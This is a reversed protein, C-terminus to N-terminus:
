RAAATSWASGGARRSGEDVLSYHRPGPERPNLTPLKDLWRTATPGAPVPTLTGDAPEDFGFGGPAFGFDDTSETPAGLRAWLDLLEEPQLSESAGLDDTEGDESWLPALLDALERAEREELDQLQALEYFRARRDSPLARAIETIERREEAVTADNAEDKFGAGAIDPARETPQVLVASPWFVGVLLPRFDQGGLPYQARTAAFGAIFSEYREIASSWTNNWGHSFLFVDTATSRGLTDLLHQRTVPGTCVGDEDFPIVYFPATGGGAVDVERYPGRIPLRDAM